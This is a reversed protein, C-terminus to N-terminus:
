WLTNGSGTPGDCSPFGGSPRLEQPRAWPALFRLAWTWSLAMPDEIFVLLLHQPGVAPLHM